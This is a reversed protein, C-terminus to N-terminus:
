LTVVAAPAEEEGGGAPDRDPHAYRRMLIFDVAGLGVYLSIFV